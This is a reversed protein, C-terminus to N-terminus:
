SRQSRVDGAVTVSTPNFKWPGAAFSNVMKLYFKQIELADAANIGGAGTVDAALAPLGALINL